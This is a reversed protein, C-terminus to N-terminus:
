GQLSAAMALAGASMHLISKIRRKNERIRRLDNIPILLLDIHLMGPLANVMEALRCPQSPDSWPLLFPAPFVTVGLDRFLM